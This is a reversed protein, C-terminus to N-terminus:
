VLAHPVEFHLQNAIPGIVKAGLCLQNWRLNKESCSGFIETYQSLAARIFRRMRLALSISHRAAEATPYGWLFARRGDETALGVFGLLIDDGWGAVLPYSHNGFYILVPQEAQTFSHLSLMEAVSVNRVIM